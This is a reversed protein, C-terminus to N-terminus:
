AHHGSPSIDGLGEWQVTGKIGIFGWVVAKRKSEYYNWGFWVYIEKGSTGFFGLLSLSPFFNVMFHRTSTLPKNLRTAPLLIPAVAGYQEQVILAM